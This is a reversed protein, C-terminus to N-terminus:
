LYPIIQAFSLKKEQETFHLIFNLTPSNSCISRTFSRSLRNAWFHLLLLYILTNISNLLVSSCLVSWFGLLTDSFLSFYVQRLMEVNYLFFHRFPVQPSPLFPPPSVSVNYYKNWIVQLLYAEGSIFM